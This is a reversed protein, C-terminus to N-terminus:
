LKSAANPLRESDIKEFLEATSMGFIAELKVRTRPYPIHVCREWLCIATPDLDLMQALYRQTWGRSRREYRLRITPRSLTTTETPM